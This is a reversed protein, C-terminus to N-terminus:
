ALLFKHRMAPRSEELDGSLACQRYTETALALSMKAAYQLSVRLSRHNIVRLLLLTSLHALNQCYGVLFAPTPLSLWRADVEGGHSTSSAYPATPRDRDWPLAVM